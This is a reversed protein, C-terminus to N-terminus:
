KAEFSDLTGWTEATKDGPKLAETGSGAATCSGGPLLHAFRPNSSGVPPDGKVRPKATANRRVLPRESFDDSEVWVGTNKGPVDTTCNCILMMKGDTGYLKIPTEMEPLGMTSPVPMRWPYGKECAAKVVKDYSPSAGHAAATFALAFAAASADILKM